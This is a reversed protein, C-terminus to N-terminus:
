NSQIHFYFTSGKGLESEVHITGGLLEILNRSIALGLGTGGFNMKYAQESQIFREFITAQQDYPIGIGTDTIRFQIFGGDSKVDLSVSGLSTFKIANGILNDLIQKLRHEDTLIIVEPDIESDLNFHINKDKKSLIFENYHINIENLFKSLKFPRKKVTLLNAEIKSIDIIDNILNLLMEGNKQILKVFIERDKIDQSEDELLESFGIIANMPTRIEHSM